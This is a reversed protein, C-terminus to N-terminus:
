RRAKERVAEATKYNDSEPLLPRRLWNRITSPDVRYRRAMRPVFHSDPTPIEDNPRTPSPKRKKYVFVRIDSGEPLALIKQIAEQKTM